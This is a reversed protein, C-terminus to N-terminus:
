LDMHTFTFPLHPCNALYSNYVSLLYFCNLPGRQLTAVGDRNPELCRVLCLAAM